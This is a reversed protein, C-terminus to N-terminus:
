VEQKYVKYHQKGRAAIQPLHTIAVVQMRASMQQMIAAMKYSIDGSVGADIEDFIISPLHRYASLIAKVALMIRSLEGGSAIKKLPGFQRGKNASILLELRDKGQSFYQDSHHLDFKFRTASMGLSSLIDELKKLLVPVAKCREQYITDALKDIKLTTEALQSEVAALSDSVRSVKELAESLDQQVSLLATVSDVSHKKQLDYILGLRENLKEMTGAEPHLDDNLRDIDTALDEFEIKLSDVRDYLTQYEESFPAIARLNTFFDQLLSQLGTEETYALSRATSLHIKIAEINQLKELTQELQEQEHEQLAATELEEFLHLHYAEQEQAAQQREKLQALEKNLARFLTLGRRYSEVREANGALADLIEFQFDTNSLQLTQHQSHIDVLREGLSQLVQLTAPTDNIFARSKGSPLIERRIITQSDFDLDNEKFFADLQYNDISFGAEIVCKKDAKKLTTADARKGLVLGLAGLLISKGAGTEGTIVSLNDKFDVRLKEILAYNEISLNTLM